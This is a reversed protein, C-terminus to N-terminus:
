GGTAAAGALVQINLLVPPRPGCLHQNCCCTLFLCVCQGTETFVYMQMPTGGLLLDTTPGFTPQVLVPVFALRQGRPPALVFTSRSLTSLASPGAWRHSHEQTLVSTSLDPKRSSSSQTPSLLCIVLGTRVGRTGGERISIPHFM